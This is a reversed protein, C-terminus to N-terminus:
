SKGAQLASLKKKDQRYNLGTVAAVYLSAIDLPRSVTFLTPLIHENGISPILISKDIFGAVLSGALVKLSNNRVVRDVRVQRQSREIRAELEIEAETPQESKRQQIERITKSVTFATTVLGTVFDQDTYVGRQRIEELMDLVQKDLVGRTSMSEVTRTPSLARVDPDKVRRMATVGLSVGAHLSALASEPFYGDWAMNLRPKITAPESEQNFRVRSRESVYREQSYLPNVAIAEDILGLCDIGEDSLATRGFSFLKNSDRVKPMSDVTLLGEVFLSTVAPRGREVFDSLDVLPEESITDLQETSDEIDFMLRDVSTIEGKPMQM